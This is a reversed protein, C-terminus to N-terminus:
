VYQRNASPTEQVIKQVTQIVWERAKERGGRFELNLDIVVPHVDPKLSPDKDRRSKEKQLINLLPISIVTRDLIHPEFPKKTPDSQPLPADTAKKKAGGSRAAKRKPSDNSTRKNM